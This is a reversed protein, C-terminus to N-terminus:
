LADTLFQRSLPCINVYLLNKHVSNLLTSAGKLTQFSKLGFNPLFQHKEFVNEIKEFNQYIDIKATNQASIMDPRLSLM